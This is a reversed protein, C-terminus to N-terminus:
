AILSMACRTFFRDICCKFMLFSVNHRVNAIAALLALKASVMATSAENFACTLLWVLFCLTLEEGLLGLMM